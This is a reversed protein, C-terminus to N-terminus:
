YSHKLLDFMMKQLLTPTQGLKAMIMIDKLERVLETAMEETISLRDNITIHKVDTVESNFWNVNLMKQIKMTNPENPENQENLTDNEQM